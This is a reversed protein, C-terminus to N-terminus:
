GRAYVGLAARQAASLKASAERLLTRSLVARHKKLLAFVDDPRSKCAERLAWGVAKAVSTDRDNIARECVRLTTEADARGKQNLVTTTAVACRRRWPNPATAWALLDRVWEGRQPEKARGILEGVVGMALQDCTEWNDISEIWGDVKAWLGAEFKAKFRALFFTACLMEERCGSAFALDGLRAADALTLQRNASVFEKVKARLVPVAIGLVTNKTPAITRYREAVAPDAAARLDARLSTWLAHPSKTPPMVSFIPSRARASNPPLAAYRANRDCGEPAPM